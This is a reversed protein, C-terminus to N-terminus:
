VLMQNDRLLTPFFVFRHLLLLLLLPASPAWREAGALASDPPENSYLMGEAGVSRAVMQRGTHREDSAAGLMGFQQRLLLCGCPSLHRSCWCTFFWCSNLSSPAM